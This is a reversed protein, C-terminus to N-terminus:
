QADHDDLHHVSLGREEILGGQLGHSADTVHGRGLELVGMPDTWEGTEVSTM